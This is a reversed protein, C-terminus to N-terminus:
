FFLDDVAREVFPAVIVTVVNIMLLKKWSRRSEPEVASTPENEHELQARKTLVSTRWLILFQVSCHGQANIHSQPNSAGTPTIIDRPHRPSRLQTPNTFGHATRRLVQLLNNTGEIPRKLGPRHPALRPDDSWAIITDVTISRHKDLRSKSSTNNTANPSTATTTSAENSHQSAPPTPTSPKPQPTSPPATNTATDACTPGHPVQHTLLQYIERAIHRKLCRITEPRTRRERPSSAGCRRTFPSQPRTHEATKTTTAITPSAPSAQPRRPMREARGQHEDDPTVHAPPPHQLRTPRHRARGHQPRRDERPPAMRNQTASPDRHTRPRPGRHLVPRPVEAPACRPATTQCQVAGRRQRRRPPRPRSPPGRRRAVPGPTSSTHLRCKPPPEEASGNAPHRLRGTRSQPHALYEITAPAAGPGPRAPGPRASCAGPSSSRSLTSPSM